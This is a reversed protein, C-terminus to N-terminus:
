TSTSNTLSPEYNTFVMATPTIKKLYLGLFQALNGEVNFSSYMTPMANIYDWVLQRAQKREWVSNSTRYLKISIRKIQSDQGHELGGAM